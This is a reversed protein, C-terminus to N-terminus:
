STNTRSPATMCSRATSPAPTARMLTVNTSPYSSYKCVDFAIAEDSTTVIDTDGKFIISGNNFSLAYDEGDAQHEAFFHM